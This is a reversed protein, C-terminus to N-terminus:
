SEPSSASSSSTLAGASSLWRRLLDAYVRTTMAVTRSRATKASFARVTITRRDFDVESWKLKLIEGRRLACDLAILLIGKLHERKTEAEIAAFLRAEGERSLVRERKDEDAASILSKGASFPNKVLWGLQVGM